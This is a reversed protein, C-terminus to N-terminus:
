RRWLWRFSGFIGRSNKESQALQQLRNQEEEMNQIQEQIMNKVEENCECEDMLQKLREINKQTQNVKQEIETASDEDGGFLLNMIASRRRINQEARITAQVSNNFERAIQSVNRGIGGTLNEAALLTHVALRVRNQNQYINRLIGRSANTENVMEQRREQIVERLQEATKVRLQRKQTTLAQKIRNQVKEEIQNNIQNTKNASVQSAELALNETEEKQNCPCGAMVLSSMLILVLFPVILKKM